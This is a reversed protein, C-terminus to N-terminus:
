LAGQRSFHASVTRWPSVQAPAATPTVPCPCPSPAGTKSATAETDRCLPEDM